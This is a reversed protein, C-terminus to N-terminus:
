IQDVRIYFYELTAEIGHKTISFFGIIAEDDTMVFTESQKLFEEDIAYKEKFISMFEEDYGWYAESEYAIKNLQNLDKSDAKKYDLM